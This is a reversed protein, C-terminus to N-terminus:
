SKRKNKIDKNKIQILCKKEELYDEEDNQLLDLDSM